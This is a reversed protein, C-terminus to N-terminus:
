VLVLFIKREMRQISLVKVNVKDGVKFTKKSKEIESNHVLGVTEDDLQILAGFRKFERIPVEFTDDKAITDWLTVRWVQTLILKGRVIEKVFFEIQDAPKINGSQLKAKWEDSLNASHIMGTLCENFEVFVGFKTTGTVKGVYKVPEGSQDKISLGEIAQPILTQLYKKRSVVFTGKDDQFTEVMVNIEQGVLEQAQDQSLKNIGALTNPMFAPIKFGEHNVEMKYGAPSWELVKASVVVSDLNNLIDDYVDRKDISTFSGVIQYPNESINTIMVEVTDGSQKEMRGLAAFEDKRSEIMVFDKYNIDVFIHTKNQGVLTGEVVAGVELKLEYNHTDHEMFMKLLEDAYPEESVVRFKNNNVKNDVLKEM